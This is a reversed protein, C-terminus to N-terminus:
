TLSDSPLLFYNGADNKSIIGVNFWHEIRNRAARDKLKLLESIRDRLKGHPYSQGEKLIRAAEEEAAAQKADARVEAAGGCSVHMGQLDDWRFCVGRSKPIQCHRSRETFITTIGAADKSLRLNTEAKRELQSGLHGRTKGQESGPNEHLVTCIPAEYQIAATHLKSVLRFSEVDDNLAACLDGVGDVIVAFIGGFQAEAEALIALLAKLRDGTEVDALSYSLLWPPPAAIGARKLSRRVLADHDFRSQETDFHIVAKGEPNSSSFGLCDGAENNGRMIAALIAGIVASKGAKPPAQINTLNGATSLSVGGLLLVPVPKEPVTDFDFKRQALLKLFKNEASLSAANDSSDDEDEDSADPLGELPDSPDLGYKWLSMWSGGSLGDVIDSASEDGDQLPFFEDVIEGALTPGVADATAAVIHIWTSRGPRDGIKEALKSLHRRVHEPDVEGASSDSAPREPLPIPQLTECDDKWTAEPDWSIFSLRLPDKTAPDLLLGREKFYAEAALWCGLHTGFDAPIKGFAKVGEGSLSRFCIKVFPASEVIARIEAVTM